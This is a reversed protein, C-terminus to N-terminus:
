TKGGEKGTTTKAMNNALIKNLLEGKVRELANPKILNEYCLPHKARM